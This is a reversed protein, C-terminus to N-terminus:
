FIKMMYSTHNKCLYNPTILKFFVSFKKYHLFANMKQSKIIYICPVKRSICKREKQSVFPSATPSSYFLFSVFPFCM